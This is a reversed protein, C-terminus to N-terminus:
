SFRYKVYKFNSETQITSQFTQVRCTVLQVQSEDQIGFLINSICMRVNSSDCVDAFFRNRIILSIDASNLILLVVRYNWNYKYHM